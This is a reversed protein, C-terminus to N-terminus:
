GRVPAVRSSTLWRGLLGRPPGEWTAPAGNVRYVDRYLRLWRQDAIRTEIQRKTLGAMRAHLGRFVGHHLAAHTALAEDADM